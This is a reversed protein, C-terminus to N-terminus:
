INWGLCTFFRDSEAGHILAHFNQADSAPSPMAIGGYLLRKPLRYSVQEAGGVQNRPRFSNGRVQSPLDLYLFVGLSIDPGPLFTEGIVQKKLTVSMTLISDDESQYSVKMASIDLCNLIDEEVSTCPLASPQISIDYISHADPCIILRIGM